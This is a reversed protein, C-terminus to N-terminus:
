EIVSSLRPFDNILWHTKKKLKVTQAQQFLLQQKQIPKITNKYTYLNNHERGKRRSDKDMGNDAGIIVLTDSAMHQWYVEM